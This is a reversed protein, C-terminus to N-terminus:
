GADALWQRYSEYLRDGLMQWDYRALVLARGAAALESWRSPQQCLSALALLWDEADDAILLDRGPTVELGEAGLTSSVVPVGAAMAELIKLRTGGGTRLPVVAAVADGYYPRIDPVTGTVEVNRESRLEIVAPGPNSGVITFHWEPFRERIRPWIHRAFLVVAETNPYYDMSGVFVIRSRTPTLTSAATGSFYDTDVGNEVVVIRARPEIALLQQQERVSCVAHGFGSRLLMREVGEARRATLSAYLKRPVSKVNSSYRRLAESVINHWNYVVRVPSHSISELFPAYAAMSFGDIHILDFPRATVIGAVLSKMEESTYNIVTLPWRSVLGRAIRLPSYRRPTPVLHIDRFFPLDAASPAEAGPPLFSVYTVEAHQALARAIHYERLRAGTFQPACLRPSLFLIRM